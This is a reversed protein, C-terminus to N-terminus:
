PFLHPFIRMITEPRVFGAFARDPSCPGGVMVWPFLPGCAPSLGGPARPQHPTPRPLYRCESASCAPGDSDGCGERGAGQEQVQTYCFGFVIGAQMRTRAGRDLRKGERNAPLSLGWERGSGGLALWGEQGSAVVTVGVPQERSGVHGHPGM